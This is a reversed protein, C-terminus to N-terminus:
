MKSFKENPLFTDCDRRQEENTAVAHQITHLSSNTDTLFREWFKAMIPCLDMVMRKLREKILGKSSLKLKNSHFDFCCFRKNCLRIMETCSFEEKFLGPERRDHNKHKACCTCPFFNTTSNVSLEDKCDGSRLSHWEKKM